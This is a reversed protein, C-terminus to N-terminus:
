RDALRSLMDNWSEMTTNSLCFCFKGFDSSRYRVPGLFGNLLGSVTRQMLPSLSGASVPENMSNCLAPMKLRWIRRWMVDCRRMIM